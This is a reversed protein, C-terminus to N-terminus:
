LSASRNGETGRNYDSVAVQISNPKKWHVRFQSMRKKKRQKFDNEIMRQHLVPDPSITNLVIMGLARPALAIVSSVLLILWFRLDVIAEEAVMVPPNNTIFIFSAIFSYLLAFIFYAVISALLSLMLASTWYKSLLLLHLCNVLVLQACLVFGFTNIDCETREYVMHSILYIVSSQWVADLINFWFSYARYLKSRRGQDYLFPYEILLKSSADQDTIGFILPPVGTFLFNFIMLYIPDIPVQASFGNFLQCWFLVFVFLANKYFFYLITLALRYYCWHGHVLLLNTLFRFRPLAFDSAMVAQMGEQGSIGIGVDACQIMSVDNAGDGIALVKGKLQNKALKVISAKQLPTVRCCLVARSRSIVQIFLPMNFPLLCHSLTTGGIVLGYEISYRSRSSLFSNESYNTLTCADIRRQLSSSKPGVPLGERMKSITLRLLKGTDWENKSDLHILEMSPSFLKTAYAINVATEVKDGTLVWIVFGAQRLAYICQPVGDQLRDEIGTVGLLDLGNEIRIASETLLKERDKVDMEAEDHLLKWSTYEEENLVRKCLCLTRLGYSAYVSVAQEARLVIAGGRESDRFSDSILPFIASDAGKCYLTICGTSDKVIVSMRKRTSDFPLVHLVSYKLVTGTLDFKLLAWRSYRRCLRIGYESAAEVLALEDPSEAEYIPNQVVDDELLDECSAPKKFRILSNLKIGKMHLKSLNLNLLKSSSFSRSSDRSSPTPTSSLNAAPSTTQSLATHELEPSRSMQIVGDSESKQMHSAESINQNANRSFSTEQEDDTPKEGFFLVKQPTQNCYHVADKMASLQKAKKTASEVPDLHFLSNGTFFTDGVLSGYEDLHDQHPQANVVVTNCLSMTIFFHIIDACESPNVVNRMSNGHERSLASAYDKDKLLNLTRLYWMVAESLNCKLQQDIIIRDIGKSGAEESTDLLEARSSSNEDSGYNENGVTCRRFIMQNETLTGTKDSMIYQIQGLEEPINLAKCEISKDGSESYLNLDQSIFFIQGLKIIEISVYLSIPIMVQLVIIYNWFIIFGELFPNMPETDAVYTLYPTLYPNPQLSLFIASLIAGTICLCLLLLVCWMIDYNTLRELASRKYRPGSNNLMAKTDNGAYLVIGEVFDTNRIACGRLLLNHKGILEKENKEHEVYGSFRYIQNNPQECFVSNQFHPPIFDSSTGQMSAIIQRQKLSTEGDLNSTEVYCIGNADSSRLLLMDAPIIENCSLHVFDGVLVNRWEMKRYRQQENDWVRCTSHNIKMDSKYRRYDEFADKIATVLLVFAVPLFAVYRGFAGVAMNLIIILMFYLNAARHFQEFLNKPLFTLLNYKTTCVRNDTYAVRNPHNYRATRPDFRHNPRVIRFTPTSDSTVSGCCWPIPFPLVRKIARKSSEAKHKIVSSPNSFTPRSPPIWLSSTKRHHAKVRHSSDIPTTGSASTSAETSHSGVIDMM